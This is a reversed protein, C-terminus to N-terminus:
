EGLERLYRRVEPDPNARLEEQLLRLAEERRGRELLARALTFRALPYDPKVALVQRALLEVEKARGLALLVEAL